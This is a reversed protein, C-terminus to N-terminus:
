GAGVAAAVVSAVAGPRDMPVFHGAGPVTVVRVRRFRDAQAEVLSAPHSDSDAGAVLTVEAEIEPLRDWARHLTAGQYVEAEHVPRCKLRWGGGARELGGRVYARLARDDWRAFPGRGHYNEFAEQPSAFRDRRARAALTLPHDPIRVYPPPFVIPEILIMRSFTGPELLEALALAAAGASHGVGVAGAAREATVVALVDRGFDWWDYPPGPDESDGHARQDLAVAPNGVGLARVDEV